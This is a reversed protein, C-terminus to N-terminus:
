RSITYEISGNLYEIESVLIRMGPNFGEVDKEKVPISHIYPSTDTTYNLELTGNVKEISYISVQYRKTREFPIVFALLIAVIVVISVFKLDGYNSSNTKESM